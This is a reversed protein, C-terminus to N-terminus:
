AMPTMTALAVTVTETSSEYKFNGMSLDNFGSFMGFANNADNYVIGQYTYGNSTNISFSTIRPHGIPIIAVCMRKIADQITPSQLDHNIYGLTFRDSINLKNALDSKIEDIAAQVNAAVLGSSTNDYSVDEASISENTLESMVTVTECNTNPVIQDGINIVTTAKYLTDNYWFYDGIAHAYAATATPENISCIADEADARVDAIQSTHGTVTAQLTSVSGQLDLVNADTTALAESVANATEVASQATEAASSADSSAAFLATDVAEMSTNYDMPTTLDTGLPLPIEYHTTKNTYSM